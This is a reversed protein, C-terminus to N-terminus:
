PRRRYIGHGPGIIPGAGAISAFHHGFLVLPSKAPVYDISDYKAFAPTSRKPDISWLSEIKRAYLNYAALFLVACIVVLLLSSM